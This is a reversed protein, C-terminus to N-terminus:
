TYKTPIAIAELEPGNASNYVFSSHSCRSCRPWTVVGNGCKRPAYVAALNWSCKLAWVQGGRFSIIHCADFASATRTMIWCKCHIWRLFKAGLRQCMNKRLFQRGGKGLEDWAKFGWVVKGVGCCSGWLGFGWKTWTVTLPKSSFLVQGAVLNLLLVELAAHVLDHALLFLFEPLYLGTHVAALTFHMTCFHPGLNEVSSPSM